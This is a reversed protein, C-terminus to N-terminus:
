NMLLDCMSDISYQLVCKNNIIYLQKPINSIFRSSTGAALIIGLTKKM